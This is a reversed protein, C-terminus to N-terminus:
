AVFLSFGFTSRLRTTYPSLDHQLPEDSQILDANDWQLSPADDSMAVDGNQSRSTSSSSQLVTTSVSEATSVDAGQQGSSDSV